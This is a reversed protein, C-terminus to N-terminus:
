VGADMPLIVWDNAMLDMKSPMWNPIVMTGGRAVCVIGMDMVTRTMVANGLNIPLWDRQMEHQGAFMLFTDGWEARKVKRGMKCYALANSFNENEIPKPMERNAARQLMALRKEKARQEAIPDKEMVQVSTVPAPDVVASHVITSIAEAASKVEEEEVKESFIFKMENKPIALYCAKKGSKVEVVYDGVLLSVWGYKMKIRLTPEPHTNFSVLVKNANLRKTIEAANQGDWLIATFTSSKNSVVTKM